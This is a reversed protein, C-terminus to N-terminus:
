SVALTKAVDFSAQAGMLGLEIVQAYSAVDGLARQGIGVFLAVPVDVLIERYAENLDGSHKVGAVAKRHFQLLRGICEVGRGDVQTQADKWPCMKASCFSGDLHMRQEVQAAVNWGENVDGIALHVLDIHEVDQYWFSAAKVDHITAEGVESAPEGQMLRLCEKDNTAFGIQEKTADVRSGHVLGRTQAAILGNHQGRRLGALIVRLVQSADLEVIGFVVPM